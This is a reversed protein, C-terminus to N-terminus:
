RRGTLWAERLRRAEATAGKIEELRYDDRPRGREDKAPTRALRLGVRALADEYPPREARRVHRAFFDAFGEGGVEAVAREFDEGAYGRGRLYYTAAQGKLYFEEYMRRLVDDLSRRGETRARILLDLTLGLTEGKDYYSVSTDGLNTRQAHPAGDILPAVISSEEASMRRAAPSNEISGIQDALARYLRADDWLGARRQMLHGYYNTVGEAIWLSRTALPRTFDWPGLEAPRLRKVNWVHFFEHAAADLADELAGRDALSSRLVIQTSNLHEMADGRRATPDFHFIFTYSDFEPAGWMGVEARVIKEVGRVLAPRRGAEAGLSHVVVRYTKGAVDFEDVTWDPAVETPTDILLDYNPFKWEGRAATGDTRGNVVRWGAPAEVRLSVPDQKHGAVYMFVSAGNFNAHRSDLQSFTGSLDDAFVKYTLVFKKSPGAVKFGGTQVRWTQTDLRVVPLEIQECSADPACGSVAFVEQVNKAFDFVSYRGPSWRPMQFEVAEAPAPTSVEIRVEYLHSAPRPMSLRYAIEYVDGAEQASASLCCTLLLCLAVFLSRPASPTRVFRM